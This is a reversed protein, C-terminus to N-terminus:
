CSTRDSLFGYEVIPDVYGSRGGWGGRGFRAFGLGHGFRRGRCGGLGVCGQFRGFCAGERWKGVVDVAGSGLIERDVLSGFAAAVQVLGLDPLDVTVQRSQPLFQPDRQAHRVVFHLLHPDVLQRSLNHYLAPFPRFDCLKQLLLIKSPPRSFLRLYPHFTCLFLKWASFRPALQILFVKSSQPGVAM